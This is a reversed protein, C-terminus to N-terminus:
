VYRIFIGVDDQFIALIYGPKSEAGPTSSVADTLATLFDDAHGAPRFSIQFLADNRFWGSQRSAGVFRDEIVFEEDTSEVSSFTQREEDQTIDGVKPDISQAREVQEVFEQTIRRESKASSLKQMAASLPNVALLESEPIALAPAVVQPVQMENVGRDAEDNVRNTKSALNRPNDLKRYRGISAIPNAALEDEEPIEAPEWLEVSDLSDVDAAKEFDTSEDHAEQDKTRRIEPESTLWNLDEKSPSTEAFGESNEIEPTADDARIATKTM